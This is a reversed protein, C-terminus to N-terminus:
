YLLALATHTHQNDYSNIEDDRYSNASGRRAKDKRYPSIVQLFLLGSFSLPWVSPAGKTPGECYPERIGARTKEINAYM